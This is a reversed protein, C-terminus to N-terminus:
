AEEAKERVNIWLHLNRYPVEKETDNFLLFELKMDTGEATPTITLPREWAVEHGLSVQRLDGPLPLSENDLRVELRYNVTRYENNVIGIIVTGNEGIVYETPYDSAMGEPGLLYFETFHEKEKPSAIVYTLTGLSTLISLILLVMLIKDPKTEPKKLIEDKLDLAAARFPLTFAEEEPLQKRQYYAVGCILLTIDSLSVLLSILTIGWYTYNLFLGILTVIVISLGVSLTTREVGDLDSKGPFLAAALAYGPFFLVMLVGLVNLILSENLGPTLAVIDTLLVLGAVLLLDSPFQKNGTM